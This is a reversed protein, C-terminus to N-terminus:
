AEGSSALFIVKLLFFLLFLLSDFTLFSIARALLLFFFLYNEEIQRLTSMNKFTFFKRKYHEQFSEPHLVYSAIVICAYVKRLTGNEKCSVYALAFRCNKM